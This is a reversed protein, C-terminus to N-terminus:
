VEFALINPLGGPDTLRLLSYGIGAIGRFLSPSFCFNEGLSPEFRFFASKLARSLSQEVLSAALSQAQPMEMEGAIYNLVEAIGFNGCCWHDMGELRSLKPLVAVVEEKLQENRLLSWAGCRALLIGASGNCWNTMHVSTQQVTIPWVKQQRDFYRRDIALAQDIIGASDSIKFLASYQSIAFVIGAAGHAFGFYTKGDPRVWAANEDFSQVLRRYANEARDSATSDGTIQFTRIAALLFGAVGSIIDPERHTDITESSTKKVLELALSNWEEQRTFKGLLLCGYIVSGVGNGIGLPYDRDPQIEKLRNLLRKAAARPFLDPNLRRATAALFALIGVDGLYLGVRQSAAIEKPFYSPLAWLYDADEAGLHNCIRSAYDTVLSEAASRDVPGSLSHPFRKLSEDIVERQFYRDEVSMSQIRAVVSDLPKQKLLGPGRFDRSRLETSNLNVYFRPIDLDLLSQVEFDTLRKMEPTLSDDRLPVRYLQEFVISRRMGSALNKSARAHKQLVAYLQTPRLILRTAAGGFSEVLDAFSDKRALIFDYLESFGEILPGRYNRIDQVQGNLYVGNGAPQRPAIKETPHMQDSNLHEWETIKSGPLEFVGGGLGSYDATEHSASLQWFPLLGTEIVSPRRFFFGHAKDAATESRPDSAGPHFFTETDIPVPRNGAAVLNEFWLDHANLLYSLCLLEGAARYYQSVQEENLCPRQEIYEEWGYEQRALVKAFYWGPLCGEKRLWEDTSALAQSLSLDKPKYLIKSGDSLTLMIVQNGGDHRDSIGTKAQAVKCEGRQSKAIVLVQSYDAKLRLLFLTTTDIWTTLLQSLSRALGPFKEFLPLCGSKRLSSTFDSFSSGSARSTEFLQYTPIAALESIDRLLSLLLGEIACPLVLDAVGEIQLVNHRAFSLLPLWLAFFPYSRAGEIGDPPADLARLLNEEWGPCQLTEESFASDQALALAQSDSLNLSELRRTLLDNGGTAFVDRWFLFNESPTEPAPLTGTASALREYLYRARARISSPFPQMFFGGDFLVIAAKL